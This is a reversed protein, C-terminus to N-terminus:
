CRPAGVVAYSEHFGRGGVSGGDGNLGSGELASLVSPNPTWGQSLGLSESQLAVPMGSCQPYCCSWLLESGCLRSSDWRVEGGSAVKEKQQDTFSCIM